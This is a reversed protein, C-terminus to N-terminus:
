SRIHSNWLFLFSIIAVVAIWFALGYLGIRLQRKRYREFGGAKDDTSELRSSLADVKEELRRLRTELESSDAM